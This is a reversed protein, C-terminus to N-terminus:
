RARRREPRLHHLRQQPEVTATGMPITTGAKVPSSVMAVPNATIECAAHRQGARRDRRRKDADVAVSDDAALLRTTNNWELDTNPDILASIDYRCIGGCTGAVDAWTVVVVSRMIRAYGALPVGAADGGTKTCPAAPTVKVRYCSGILTTVTYKIRSETVTDTLPVEDDETGVERHRADHRRGLGPLRRVPRRRRRQRRRELRGQGRGETRGVVLGSTGTDSATAVRSYAVEMAHNAVAVANQQRQQTTVSRTGQVFFALSASAVIAIIALAVM